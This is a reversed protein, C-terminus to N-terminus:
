IKKYECFNIEGERKKKIQAAIKMELLFKSNQCVAFLAKELERM